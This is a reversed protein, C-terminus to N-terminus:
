SLKKIKTVKGEFIHKGVKFSFVENSKESSETILGNEHLADNVAENIMKKILKYDIGSVSSQPQQTQQKPKASEPIYGEKNAKMLRSAREIVDNSITTSQQQPQGIPHEMMLRKIEDPLKSNKIADVTPVGVPKTNERPANSLYPQQIQESEQLFEAPINYKVNPIDFTEPSNLQQLSTPPLGGNMSNSSKIGDAKDMIAKSLALKEMLRDM